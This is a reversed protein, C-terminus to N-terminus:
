EQNEQFRSIGERAKQISEEFSSRLYTDVAGIGGDKMEKEIRGWLPRTQGSKLGRRVRDFVYTNDCNEIVSKHKEELNHTNM